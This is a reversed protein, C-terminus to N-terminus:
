RTWGMMVWRSWHLHKWGPGWRGCVTRKPVAMLPRRHAGSDPWEETWLGGPSGVGGGGGAGPTFAWTRWLARCLKGEVEAQGRKGGGETRAVPAQVRNKWCVLGPGVRATGGWKGLVRQYGGPRLVLITVELFDERVENM